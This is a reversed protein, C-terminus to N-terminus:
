CCEFIIFILQTSHKNNQKHSKPNEFDIAIPKEALTSPPPALIHSTQTLHIKYCMIILPDLTVYRREYQFYFLCVFLHSFHALFKNELMNFRMRVSFLCLGILRFYRRHWASTSFSTLFVPLLTESFFQCKRFMFKYSGRYFGKIM